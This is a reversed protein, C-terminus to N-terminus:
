KPGSNAGLRRRIDIWSDVVALILVLVKVPDVLLWLVYFIALWQVNLSRRAALGHVLAFGAFILPVAFILAWLRYEAGMSSLLLGIAVLAATLPPALRLRHFETQFGGPNYLAAQWWRALILCLTITFANSLGLLGAVQSATPSMSRLQEAQSTDDSQSALQELTDAFLRQVLEIYEPALALLLLSSLLGSSVAAVLAWPWSSTARLVSALLATGLLTSLPGTEGMYALVLAPLLAWFLVLGGERSGRRLTVLAVIAAALWAFFVTGTALVAMMVAQNRGRMVYKALGRM